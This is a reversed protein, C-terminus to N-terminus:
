YAEPQVVMFESKSELLPSLSGRKGITDRCDRLRGASGNVVLVSIIFIQLYAEVGVYTKM